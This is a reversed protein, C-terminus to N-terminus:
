ARQRLVAVEAQAPTPRTLWAMALAQRRAEPARNLVLGLHATGSAELVDLGRRLQRRSSRGRAAVMLSCDALSAWIAAEPGAAIAGGDIVVWDFRRRAAALLEGLATSALSVAYPAGGPSSAGATIYWPAAPGAFRRLVAEMPARDALLEALGPAAGDGDGGGAYVSAHRPNGELVLVAPAVTALQRAVAAAVTTKGPGPEASTVLVVRMGDEAQALLLAAVCGELGRAINPPTEAEWATATEGSGRRRTRIPAVLAVLAVGMEAAEPMRLGDDAWELGWVAALGLVCGLALAYAGAVLPAPRLPRPPAVAPDVVRLPPSDAGAEALAQQLQDLLGSYVTQQAQLGRQALDFAAQTERLAAQGRVQRALAAQLDRVQQRQAQLLLAAAQQNQQRYAALSAELAGLEQRAQALPAAQPQYQAALRGITSELEARKVELEVPTTPPGGGPDAPTPAAGAALADAQRLGAIEAATEASALQQWRATALAVQEAPDALGHSTGLALVASQAANVRALAAEAQTSLAEVRALADARQRAAADELYDAILRNLFGAALEAQPATFQIRIVNSQPVAAVQLQRMMAAARDAAPRSGRWLRSELQAGWPQAAEAVLRRSGLEEAMTQLGAAPDAAGPSASEGPAAFRVAPNPAEAEISIEARYSPQLWRSAGWGAAGSAAIIAALAWGRRRLARGWRPLPAAPAAATRQASTPARHGFLDHQLPRPPM